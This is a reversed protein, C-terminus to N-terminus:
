RAARVATVVAAVAGLSLAVAFGIMTAELAASQIVLSFAISPLGM